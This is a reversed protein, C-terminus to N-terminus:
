EIEFFSFYSYSNQAFLGIQGDPAGYSSVAASTTTSVGSLMDTVYIQIVAAGTNTVTPIVQM